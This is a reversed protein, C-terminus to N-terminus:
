NGAQILQELKELRDELEEIRTERVDAEDKLQKIAVLLMPTAMEYSVNLRAGAPSTFGSADTEEEMEPDATTGVMNNFGAKVLDQAIFGYKLGKDDGDKWHYKVASVKNVFEMADSELIPTVGTKLRSDSIANFESAVIREQAYIGYTGAGTYKGTPVWSNLYGYTYTASTGGLIHLPFTPTPTNIGIGAPGFALYGPQRKIDDVNMALIMSSTQWDTGATTRYASIGLSTFNGTTCGFSALLLESNTATGLAGANTTLISSRATGGLNNGIALKANPSSNGIGVNGTSGLRLRETANTYFQLNGDSGSFMGGDADGNSDFSFGANIGNAGYDGGRARVVGNSYLRNAQATGAVVLKEAPASTGIGVNGNGKIRMTENFSASSGFGFAVDSNSSSTHIQLLSNQIGFGYNNGSNGWLSIRQGLAQTGFNLPFGPNTEGIGVNGTSRYVSSGTPTWVGISTADLKGATIVSDTIHNASISNNAIRSGNVAGAAIKVTSVQADGLMSTTVAGGAVSEAVKARMAFAGSVMQQRPSIEPDVAATGDDVTIGLYLNTYTVSNIAADLSRTGPGPIGSVAAGNGILVSFEGGSITVSQKEAYIPTGGSSLTYLKFIVDRNVPSTNGILVGAADTVRGQYSMLTPATQGHLLPAAFLLFLCTIKSKM